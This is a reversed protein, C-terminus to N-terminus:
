FSAWLFKVKCNSYFGAQENKKLTVFDAIMVIVYTVSTAPKNKFFSSQFMQIKNLTFTNHQM